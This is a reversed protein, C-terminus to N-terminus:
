TLKPAKREAKVRERFTADQVAGQHVNLTVEGTRKERLFALLRDLIAPPIQAVQDSTLTAGEGM